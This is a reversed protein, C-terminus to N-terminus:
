VGLIKSFLNILLIILQNATWYYYYYYLSTFILVFYIITSYRRMFEIFKNDYRAFAEIIRFGDLPYIPILNFFAFSFNLRIVLYLFNYLLEGYFSTDYFTPNLKFILMFIFLFLTGLILNTTIGAIAVLFKSTRGNKFNREDVPVPKAWGFGFLLLCFFGRVDFHALPALTCRGMVTATYDGQKKAVYAHAFEHFSMSISLAMIYALFYILIYGFTISSNFFTIM